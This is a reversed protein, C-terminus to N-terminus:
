VRVWEQFLNKLFKQREITMAINNGNCLNRRHTALDNEVFYKRVDKASVSTQKCMRDFEEGDIYMGLWETNNNPHTLISTAFPHGAIGVLPMCDSSIIFRPQNIAISEESMYEEWKILKTMHDSLELVDTTKISGIFFATFPLAPFKGLAHATIYRALELNTAISETLPGINGTAAVLNDGITGAIHGTPMGAGINAPEGCWKVFSALADQAEENLLYGKWLLTGIVGNFLSRTNGDSGLVFHCTVLLNGNKKNERQLHAKADEICLKISPPSLTRYIDHIFEMPDSPPINLQEM